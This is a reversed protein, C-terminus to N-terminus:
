MLAAHQYINQSDIWESTTITYKQKRSTKPKPKHGVLPLDPALLANVPLQSRKGVAKSKLVSERRSGTRAYNYMNSIWLRFIKSINVM